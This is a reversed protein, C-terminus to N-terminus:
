INEKNREALYKNHKELQEWDIRPYSETPEDKFFPRKAQGFVFERIEDQIEAVPKGKPICCTVIIRGESFHAQLSVILSTGHIRPYVEPRVALIKSVISKSDSPHIPEVLPILDFQYDGEEVIIEQNM